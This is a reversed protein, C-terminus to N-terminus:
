IITIGAPTRERRTEGEIVNTRQSTDESSAVSVVIEPEDSEHIDLQHILRHLYGRAVGLVRASEAKNWECQRLTRLILRRKFQRVEQEYSRDMTSTEDSTRIAAPLHWAEVANGDCLIAARQVANELERVNGPWSYEDMARLASYSFKKAKKTFRKVAAQLFHHALLPIDDGRERLPPLHLQVVNLRYYLDERFEREQVMKPLDRNTATILRVNVNLTANSGLREFTGEQLVRLLKPQLSVDMEGIEDLFLTGNDAAELRGRRSTLAGTFAGKEHGFLEDEILTEPLNTCSFAVMPQARRASMQHIARALLEKGTGTEGTILVNVDCAAIRQALAFLEQMAPATGLLQHMRGSDRSEARLNELEREATRIKHARRLIQRLNAISLGDSITDYAGHESVQAAFSSDNEDCFVIVPPHAASQQIEDMLAFGASPDAKPKGKRIDLVVVDCWQQWDAWQKLDLNSGHRAEFGSDLARVIAEALGFEKGLLCVRIPKDTM